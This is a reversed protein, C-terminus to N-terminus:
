QGRDEARRVFYYYVLGGRGSAREDLLSVLVWGEKGLANLQGADPLPAERADVTLVHYEWQVPEAAIKEYVMPIYVSPRVESHGTMRIHHSQLGFM